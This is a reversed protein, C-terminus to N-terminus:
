ATRGPAQYLGGPAWYMSTSSCFVGELKDDALYKVHAKLSAEDIGSSAARQSVVGIACVIVITALTAVIRFM